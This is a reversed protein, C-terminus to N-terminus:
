DLAVVTREGELWREKNLVAGVVGIARGRGSDDGGGGSGNRGGRDNPTNVSLWAELRRGLEGGRGGCIDGTTDLMQEKKQEDVFPLKSSVKGGGLSISSLSSRRSRSSESSSARRREQGLKGKRTSNGGATNTLTDDDLAQPGSNFDNGEANAISPSRPDFKFWEEELEAPGLISEVLGEEWGDWEACRHAMRLKMGASEYYLWERCLSEVSTHVSGPPLKVSSDRPLEAVAKRFLKSVFPSSQAFAPLHACHWLPRTTTSEWDIICTVKTHDVEDVFVNELSLDHCDIGFEGPQDSEGDREVLKNLKEMVGMWRGMERRVAKERQAMHTFLFTSRQMRRYDRYMANGPGEWEEESEELDYEDSDDSEDGPVAKLRHHWSSVVEHPDLHLRHPASRGENESIVGQIERNACSSLYADTSSWPGRDIEGPHSLHGRNSGFFPWSIIPGVHFGTGPNTNSPTPTIALSTFSPKPTPAAPIPSMPQIVSFPYAANHFSAKPTPIGSSLASRPSSGSYLSGIKPFRHAFLPVVIRATNKVLQILEDYSLTHFVKALPIGPAKSMLIFEGGLRNYPNSDYHYVIPVPVNTKERLYQMTAVESEVKLRPMYRRAVRAVIEEYNVLTILYAKHFTGASLFRIRGVELGIKERVVDKLARRDVEFPAAGRLSADANKERKRDEHEIDWDWVLAPKTTEQRPRKKPHPPKQAGHHLNLSLNNGNRPM